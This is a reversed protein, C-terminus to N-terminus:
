DMPYSRKDRYNCTNITQVPLNSSRSIVAKNHNSIIAKVNNMCSYSLKLTNRNLIKHLPNSKPFHKDILALFCKGVKTKVNQSYPPNFWTINRPRDKRHKTDPPPKRYTLADQYTGKAKEVSEKDSSIESLRKNISEPINKLISTSGRRLRCVSEWILGQITGEDSRIQLVTRNDPRRECLSVHCVQFFEVYPM